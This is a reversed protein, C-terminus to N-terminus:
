VKAVSKYVDRLPVSNKVALERASEYEVHVTGNAIKVKLDGYETSIVDTSRELCIRNEQRMRLGITGTEEFIIESMKDVLGNDCIVTLIFAPRNKKMYIPTFFVDRAGDDFLREMTYGLIESSTDDINTEIITVKEGLDASKVEGLIIRLANPIAPNDRTGAGYGIKSITYPPQGDAKYEDLLEAIIAAGTPTVMEKPIDVRKLVIDTKALVNAVAPVPLPFTGHECEAFGTGEVVSPCIVYKPKIIDVCVAAAVIDVISDVAGVEHFHVESVDVGHAKAEASALRRFIRTSLQKV